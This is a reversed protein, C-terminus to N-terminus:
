VVEGDCRHLATTPWGCEDGRATVRGDSHAHHEGVREYFTRDAPRTPLLVIHRGMQVAIAHVLAPPERVVILRRTLKAAKPDFASFMPIIVKEPQRIQDRVCALGAGCIYRYGFAAFAILYAARLWGVLARRRHYQDKFLDMHFRFDTIGERHVRHMEALFRARDAPNDATEKGRMVFSGSSTNLRVTIAPSDNLRLRVLHDGVHEGRLVDIAREAKRMESDLRRGSDNNCRWCTLVIKRGGVSKPPAHDLTLGGPHDVAEIPFGGLCQPCFYLRPVGAPFARMLVDPRIREIADAGRNFLVHRQRAERSINQSQRLRKSGAM